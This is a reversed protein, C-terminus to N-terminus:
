QSRILDWVIVEHYINDVVKEEIVEGGFLKAFKPNPSITVMYVYGKDRLADRMEGFVVYLAKLVSPAWRYVLIHIHAVDNVPQVTIYFDDTDCVVFRKPM